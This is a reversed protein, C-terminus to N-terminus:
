VNRKNKMGGTLIRVGREDRSPFAGRFTILTFIFGTTHQSLHAEYSPRGVMLVDCVKNVTTM